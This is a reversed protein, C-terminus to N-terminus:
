IGPIEANRFKWIEPFISIRSNGYKQLELFEPFISICLAPSLSIWLKAMKYLLGSTVVQMKLWILVPRISRNKTYFSPHVANVQICTLEVALRPYLWLRCNIKSLKIGAIHLYVENLLTVWWLMGQWILQQKYLTVNLILLKYVFKLDVTSESRRSTKAFTLM